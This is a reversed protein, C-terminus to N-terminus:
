KKRGGDTEKDEITAGLERLNDALGEPSIGLNILDKSEYWGRLKDFIVDVDALTLIVGDLPGPEIIEAGADELMTEFKKGHARWGRNIELLAAVEKTTFSKGALPKNNTDTM